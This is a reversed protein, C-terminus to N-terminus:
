RVHLVFHRGFGLNVTKVREVWSFIGFAKSSSSLKYKRAENRMRRKLMWLYVEGLHKDTFLKKVVALRSNKYYALLSLIM